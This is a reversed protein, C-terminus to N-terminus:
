KATILMDEQADNVGPKCYDVAKIDTQYVLDVGGPWCCLHDPDPDSFIKVILINFLDNNRCRTDTTQPCCGTGDWFLLSAM